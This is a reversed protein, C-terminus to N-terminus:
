MGNSQVAYGYSASDPALLFALWEKGQFDLGRAGLTAFGAYGRIAGRIGGALGERDHEAFFADVTNL